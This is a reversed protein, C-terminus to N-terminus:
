SSTEPEKKMVVDHDTEMKIAPRQRKRQDLKVRVYQEPHRIDRATSVAGCTVLENGCMARALAPAARKTYPCLGKQQLKECAAARPDATLKAISSKIVKWDVEEAQYTPEFHRVIDAETYGLHALQTMYRNRHEYKLGRKKRINKYFKRMCAPIVSHLEEIDPLDARAIKKDAGTNAFRLTGDRLRIGREVDITLLVKDMLTQLNSPLPDWLGTQVFTEAYRRVDALCLRIVDESTVYVWGNHVVPTPLDRRFLCTAKEFPVRAVFPQDLVRTSTKNDLTSTPDKMRRSLPKVQVPKCPQTQRDCWAQQIEKTGCRKLAEVLPPTFSEEDIHWATHQALNHQVYFDAQKADHTSSMGLGALHSKQILGCLTADSPLLAM